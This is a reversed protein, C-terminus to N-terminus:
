QGGQHTSIIQTRALSRGTAAGLGHASRSDILEHQLVRHYADHVILECPQTDTLHLYAVRRAEDLTEYAVRERRDPMVVEWGRRTLNVRVIMPDTPPQGLPDQEADSRM